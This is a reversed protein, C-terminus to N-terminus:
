RVDQLTWGRGLMCDRYVTRVNAQSNLGSITRAENACQAAERRMDAETAGSRNWVFTPDKDCGAVLTAAISLLIIRSMGHLHSLSRFPAVPLLCITKM